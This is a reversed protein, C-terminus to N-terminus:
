ESKCDFTFGERQEVEVGGRRKKQKNIQTERNKLIKKGFKL